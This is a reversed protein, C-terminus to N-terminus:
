DTPCLSRSGVENYAEKSGETGLQYIAMVESDSIVVAKSLSEHLERFALIGPMRCLKGVSEAKSREVDREASCSYSAIV